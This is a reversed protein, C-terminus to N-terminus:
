VQLCRRYIKRMKANVFSIDYQKIKNQNYIGMNKRLRYVRKSDGSLKLIAEAFGEIDDQELLVGGNDDILETNGRIKSAIVPLGAAMAEMLAVPMGERKSPFVFIDASRYVTDIDTVYGALQIQKEIHLQKAYQIMWLKLEGQGCILYYIDERHSKQSLAAIAEMVISHNKGKNLEGVSLLLKADKPINYKTRVVNRENRDESMQIGVSREKRESDKITDDKIVSDNDRFRKTDVGVGPIRCIAKASLHRRAFANDEENITILVETWYSLLKEVPYYLLWNKLPAGKYFHFGHATYVVPIKRRHAVIRALAGGIPSHCHIMEYQCCKTLKDLQVYAKVCQDIAWINRPCDWQYWRVHWKSLTKKLKQIRRKDCTNGKQFNCTVHVEYGMHQLLQINSMNFQDIMSAVSAAMLVKKKM